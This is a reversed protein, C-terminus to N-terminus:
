CGATLAGTPRKTRVLAERGRFRGSWFHDCSVFVATVIIMRAPFDWCFMRFIALRRPARWQAGGNLHRYPM